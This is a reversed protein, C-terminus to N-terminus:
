VFLDKVTGIFKGWVDKITRTEEDSSQRGSDAHSFIITPPKRINGSWSPGIFKHPAREMSLIYRITGIASIYSADSCGPPMEYYEQPDAVRVSVGLLESVLSDLGTTRAVGGSLIVGGPFQKFNHGPITAFIHEEILEELRCRIVKIAEEPDIQPGKAILQSLDNDQEAFLAKKLEEAKKLPLRFFTALDSTIHDGGIPISAVKFPHGDRYFTLGTTGGGISLSIAGARMEEETLAGLAAALPKIVLDKVKVGSAEVCNIVNQVYSMPVIVTQLHMKLGSGMMGKPEEVPSNDVAYQVPISHLAMKNASISLNDQAAQLAREVDETQIARNRSLSVYGESLVSSVEVANFAVTAHRLPFGVMNEANRVANQVSLKAQELNVIQGKRIGQSPASGIGMIRIGNRSRAERQAVIVSIKYAGVGLGVLATEQEKPM